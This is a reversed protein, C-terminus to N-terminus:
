EIEYSITINSVIKNEGSPVEPTPRAEASMVKTDAGMGYYMPGPYIPDTNEYFSTIKKLRVGLDKALKKSKEKADKIAEERAKAQLTDLDDIVFNIGSLNSVNVEGVKALADGAKDIQRIKVEITQSVEYGTLNQKGPPCYNQTCAQQSWEYKPYLNYSTTKIDKDEVGISRVVALAKNSKETAKDQAEKATKASEVVSFSFSAIDPKALIEGKGNVSVVNAPYVGKGIYRYERLSSFVKVLFFISIILVFLTLYKVLKKDMSNIINDMNKNPNVSRAFKKTLILLIRTVM